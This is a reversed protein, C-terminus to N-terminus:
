AGIRQSEESVFRFTKLANKFIPYYRDFQEATGTFSIRYSKEEDILYTSEGKMLIDKANLKHFPLRLKYQITNTKTKRGDIKIKNEGLARFDPFGSYAQKYQLLLDEVSEKQLPKVTIAFSVTYGNLDDRPGMVQLAEYADQAGKSETTKWHNPYKFTFNFNPNSSKFDISDKLMQSEFHSFYAKIGILLTTCCFLTTLVMPSLIKKKFSIHAM